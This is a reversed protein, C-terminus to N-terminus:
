IASVISHNCKPGCGGFGIGQGLCRQRRDDCPQSSRRKALTVRASWRASHGPAALVSPQGNQPTGRRGRVTLMQKAVQRVHIKSRRNGMLKIATLRGIMGLKIAIQLEGIIFAKVSFAERHLFATHLWAQVQQYLVDIDRL